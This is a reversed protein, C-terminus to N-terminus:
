AMGCIGGLFFFRLCPFSYFRGGTPSTDMYKDKIKSYIAAIVTERSVISM